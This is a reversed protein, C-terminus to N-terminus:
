KRLVTNNNCWVSTGKGVQNKIKKTRPVKIGINKLEQIVFEQLGVPNELDWLPKM